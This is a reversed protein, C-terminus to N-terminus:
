SNVETSNMDASQIGYVSRSLGTAAVLGVWAEWLDHRVTEEDQASQYIEQEANLLDLISRTGLTYQERYLNRVESITKKRNSLVSLRERAGQLQERYGRVRDDANLLATDIRKRAAEEAALAGKVQAQLSGGQFVASSVNFMISYSSGDARMGAQKVGNLSKDMSADVSLTPMRQAKAYALEASAGELEAKAILVEPLSHTDVELGIGVLDLLEEPLNAVQQPAEPGILTILKEHWQRRQSRIQLYNARAADVRAWAQIPDAQTSLGSAGRLRALDYVDMVAAVQQRAIEELVQYRHLMVTAAAAQQAIVEIQKFVEGQQRDLRTQANRVSSGVKDFDYLMQSVSATVLTSSASSSTKNSNGSGLGARLQPYYGARAVSIGADAKAVMAVADAISPHREIALRVAQPLQLGTDQGSTAGTKFLNIAVETKVGHMADSQPPAGHLGGMNKLPSRELIQREFVLSHLRTTSRELTELLPNAMLPVNLAFLCMGLLCRYM